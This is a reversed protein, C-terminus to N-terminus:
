VTTSVKAASATSARRVAASHRPLTGQRQHAHCAGQAGEWQANRDRGSRDYRRTKAAVRELVDLPLLPARPAPRRHGLRRARRHGALLLRGRSNSPRLRRRVGRVAAQGPLPRRDHADHRSHTKAPRLARLPLLPRADLDDDGRRRLEREALHGDGRVRAHLLGGDRRRAERLGALQRAGFFDIMVTELSEQGISPM